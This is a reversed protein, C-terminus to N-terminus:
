RVRLLHEALIELFRRRAEQHPHHGIGPLRYTVCGPLDTAIIEAPRAFDADEEGIIMTTPCHIEGLRPGVPVQDMMLVGLAEYAEPDLDRHRLRHHDWYRSQWDRQEDTAHDALAEEHERGVRELHGQLTEMGKERLFGGTKEFVLRTLNDPPQSATSMLVLSAVRDPHALVFRLAIMGGFSHGLLDCRDIELADLLRAQDDVLTEFDYGPNSGTEVSRGHGRVDPALVRGHEALAPLVREFDRRHGTLGHILVLPRTGSGAEDYALKLTGLALKHTQIDILNM